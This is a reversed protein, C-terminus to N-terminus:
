EQPGKNEDAMIVELRAGAIEIVAYSLMNEYLGGLDPVHLQFTYENIFLRSLRVGVMEFNIAASENNYWTSLASM